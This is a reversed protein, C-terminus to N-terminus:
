LPVEERIEKLRSIRFSEVLGQQSEDQSFSQDMHDGSESLDSIRDSYVYSRSNHINDTKLTSLPSFELRKVQNMSKELSNIDEIVEPVTYSLDVSKQSKDGDIISGLDELKSIRSSLIISKKDDEPLIQLIDELKVDHENSRVSGNNIIQYVVAERESMTLGDLTDDNYLVRTFM